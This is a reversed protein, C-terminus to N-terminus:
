QMHLSERLKSWMAGSHRLQTASSVAMARGPDQCNHLIHVGCAQCVSTGGPGKEFVYPADACNAKMKTLAATAVSITGKALPELQQV